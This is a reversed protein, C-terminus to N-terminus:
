FVQRVSCLRLTSDLFDSKHQLSGTHENYEFNSRASFIHHLLQCWVSIYLLWMKSSLYNKWRLKKLCAKLSWLLTNSLPMSVSVLTIANCNFDKFYSQGVFGFMKRLIPVVKGQDGVVHLRKLLFDGPNFFCDFTDRVYLAALDWSTKLPCIVKLTKYRSIM